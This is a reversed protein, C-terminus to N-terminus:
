LTVQLCAILVTLAIFMFMPIRLPATKLSQTIIANMLVAASGLVLMFIKMSTVLGGLDIKMEIDGVQGGGLTAVIIGLIAPCLFVGGMLIFNAQSSTKAIREKKLMYVEFFENGLRELVDSFSGASVLAINLISMVRSIMKSDAETSFQEMAAGFSDEHMTAVMRKLLMGMRDDRNNALSDLASEVSMGARVNEALGNLMDPLADEVEQRRKAARQRPMNLLTSVVVIVLLAAWVYFWTEGGSEAPKQFIDIVNDPIEVM